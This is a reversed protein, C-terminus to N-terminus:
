SVAGEPYKQIEKQNRRENRRITLDDSHSRTPPFKKRTFLTASRKSM